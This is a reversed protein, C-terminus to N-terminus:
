GNLIQEIENEALVVQLQAAHMALLADHDANVAALYERVYQGGDGDTHVERVYRRGDVQAHGVTKTSSVIAM